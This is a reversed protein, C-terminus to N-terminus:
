NDPLPADSGNWIYNSLEPDSEEEKGLQPKLQFLRSICRNAFWDANVDLIGVSNCSASIAPHKIVQECCFKKTKFIYSVMKAVSSDMKALFLRRASNAALACSDEYGRLSSVQVSHQGKYHNLDSSIKYTHEDKLKNHIEQLSIHEDKLKDYKVQDSRNCLKEFVFTPHHINITTEIAAVKRSGSDLSDDDENESASNLVSDVPISPNFRAKTTDPTFSPNVNTPIYPTSPTAGFADHVTYQKQRKNFYSTPFTGFDAIVRKQALEPVKRTVAADRVPKTTV